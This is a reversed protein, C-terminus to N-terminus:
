IIFIITFFTNQKIFLPLIQPVKGEGQLLYQYEITGFLVNIKLLM